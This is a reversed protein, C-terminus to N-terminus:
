LSALLNQLEYALIDEKRYDAELQKYEEGIDTLVNKVNRIKQEHALDIRKKKSSNVLMITLGALLVVVGVAVLPIITFFAALILAAGIGFSIFAPTNKVAAKDAAAKEHYFSEVASGSRDVHDLDVSGQYDDVTVESERKFLGHYFDIYRDGSSQQLERTLIMMNKRMQPNSKSRGEAAYVWDMTRNLIDFENEDHTKGAEFAESAADLDGQYKIILENRAIEEYVSAEDPCPDSVIEDIYEKLFENRRAEDVNMTSNVFDIVNANNRALAIASKLMGAAKVHKTIAPYPFSFDDAFTRFAASIKAISEERSSSSRDIAQEVLDRIYDGVKARTGDSVDDEITKSLLSFFLLVMSQDSGTLSCQTLDDFWKLAADERGLRLNFVLLFAATKKRDLKLAQGLSRYAREKQDNKWACVAILTPTLWYNPQELHEREVASEILRDSIMSFDLNDMMGQVIKRVKRYVEFDYYKTNNCQRIKKNALEMNKLRTYVADMEQQIEYAQVVRMHSQSLSSNANALGNNITNRANILSTEAAAIAGVAVGIESRLKANEREVSNLKSQLRSVEAQLDYNSM